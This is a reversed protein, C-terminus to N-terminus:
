LGDGQRQSQGRRHEPATRLIPLGIAIMLIGTLPTTLSSYTLVAFPVAGGVLLWNAVKPARTRVALAGLVAVSGAIGLMAATGMATLGLALYVAALVVLLTPPWNRVIAAKVSGAWIASRGALGAAGLAAVAAPVWALGATTLGLIAAILFTSTIALMRDTTTAQTTAIAALGLVAALVLTVIGLTVPDNKNGTWPTTGATLQLIGAAGGLLGAVAGTDRALILERTM